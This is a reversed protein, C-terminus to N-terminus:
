EVEEREKQAISLRLLRSALDLEGKGVGLKKAASIRGKPPMQANGITKAVGLHSQKRLGDRLKMTLEVDGQSRHYQEAFTLASSSDPELEEVLESERERDVRGYVTAAARRREADALAPAMPAQVAARAAFFQDLKNRSTQMRRILTVIAAISAALFFCAAFLGLQQKGTAMSIMRGISVSQKPQSKVISVAPATTQLTSEEVQQRALAGIDFLPTKQFQVQDPVKELTKRAPKQPATRKVERAQSAAAKLPPAVLKAAVNVPSQTGDRSYVDIWIAEHGDHEVIQYKAYGSRLTLVIKSSGNVVPQVTAAEIQGTHFQKKWDGTVFGSKIDTVSLTLVNGNLDQAYKLPGKFFVLLRTYGPRVAYRVYARDADTTKEQMASLVGCLLLAALIQASVRSRM